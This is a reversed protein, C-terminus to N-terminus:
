KNGDHVIPISVDDDGDYIENALTPNITFKVGAISPNLQADLVEVKVDSSVNGGNDYWRMRSVKPFPVLKERDLYGIQLVEYQETMQGSSSTRQWRVPYFGLHTDLWVRMVFPRVVNGPHTAEGVEMEVRGDSDANAATVLRAVKAVTTWQAPSKFESLTLTTGPRTYKSAFVFAFPETFVAEGDMTLCSFKGKHVALLRNNHRLLDESRAGDYTYHESYTVM